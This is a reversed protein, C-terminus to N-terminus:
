KRVIIKKSITSQGSSIEIIYIGSTLNSIDIKNTTGSTFKDILCIGLTNFLKINHNDYINKLFSINISENAPNPFITLEEANVDNEKVNVFGSCELDIQNFGNYKNINGSVKFLSDHHVTISFPVNHFVGSVNQYSFTLISSASCGILNSDLKLISTKFYNSCTLCNNIYYSLSCYYNSGNQVISTFNEQNNAMPHPNEIVYNVIHQKLVIGNTDLEMVMSKLESFDEKTNSGVIIFTNHNSVIADYIMFRQGTSKIIHSNSINGNLDLESFFLDGQPHNSFKYTSGIIYFKNKYRLIRFSDTSDTGITRSNKLNGVSDTRLLLLDGYDNYHTSDCNGFVLIDKNPLEFVNHANIGQQNSISVNSKYLKHWISDGNLNRKLLMIERRYYPPSGLKGGFSLLFTDNTTVLDSLWFSPGKCNFGIGGLDDLNSNSKQIFSAWPISLNNYNYSFGSLYTENNKEISKFYTNDTYFTTLTDLNADFKVHLEIGIGTNSYKKGQGVWILSNSEIQHFGGVYSDYLGTINQKAFHSQSFTIKTTGIFLTLWLLYYNRYEM